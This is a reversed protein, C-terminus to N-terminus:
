IYSAASRSFTTPANINFAGNNVLEANITRGTASGLNINIVGDAANTLPGANVNLFSGGNSSSDLTLVGHNVFGGNNNLNLVANASAVGQNLLTQGQGLNGDFATTGRLILAIPNTAAPAFGVACNSLVPTGTITGGLYNFYISDASFANNTTFTGGPNNTFIQSSGNITLSGGTNITLSANNIYNAASRSFTTPANINFAGNNIL